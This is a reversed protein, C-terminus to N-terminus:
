SSEQDRHHPVDRPDGQWSGGDERHEASRSGGAVGSGGTSSSFGRFSTSVTGREVAGRIRGNVYNRILKRTAPVLGILGAVDSFVGPTILLAGSILIIVGDLLERSPLGGSHLRENFQKWVALGERKALYSGALGTLVIIGVTPWFGIWGGIQILLALEIVPVILFLALLRGFM